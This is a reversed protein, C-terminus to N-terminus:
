VEEEEFVWITEPTDPGYDRTPYIRLVLNSGDKKRYHYRVERHEGLHLRIDDYNLFGLFKKQEDEAVYDRSYTQMSPIFRYDNEELIEAFFAPKYIARAQDHKMDVVYTGKFRFAIIDLFADSDKKELLIRELKQNMLRAKSLNGAQQYYQHKAEYMKKEAATIMDTVSSSESLWAAGISIHYGFSEMRENLHSIRRNMEERSCDTCLVIFEDGGIRYCEQPKFYMKLSDGICILMADGAAHGLTNNLEHLGNADIYLCSLEDKRGEEYAGISMEYCNRNQLGTLADMMSMQEIQHYFKMNSIAMLFNRSVCELLTCDKWHQKMNFCGLIGALEEDTNFVPVLMMNSIKQRGSEDGACNKHMMQLDESYLLLSRGAILGNLIESFHKEYVIKDFVMVQDTNEGSSSYVQKVQVGDLTLFIATDAKLTSAVKKLADAFVKPDKHADFLTRQVDYMYISQELRRNKQITDKRVRMLVWLFYVAFAIIEIAAIFYLVRRIKIVNDFAISELVTLQVMWQNVGIPMYYSYFYEGATNSWFALHGDKGEIFDQKMQLYDYGPKVKRNMIEEDFINGLSDHWTDVLFDGTEGDAVFIQANGDFATTSISDALDDLRVFGYLIGITQGDKELAVAQYFGKEDEEKLATVIGSIYPLREIEEEFSFGDETRIEEGSSLILRHDTLLMGFGSLMGRQRLAGLHRKIIETDQMDHQTLLDAINELRERNDEVHDFIEEAVQVAADDLTDFCTDTALQDVRVAAYAFFVGIFCILILTALINTNLVKKVSM